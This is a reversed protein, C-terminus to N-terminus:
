NEKPPAVTFKVGDHVANLTDAEQRTAVEAKGDVVNVKKTKSGAITYAITETTSPTASTGSTPPPTTPM